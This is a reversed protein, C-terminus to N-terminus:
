ATNHRKTETIPGRGAASPASRDDSVVEVVAPRGSALAAELAARIGDPEEVLVGFCGFDEAIRAFSVERLFPSTEGVGGFVPSAPRAPLVV